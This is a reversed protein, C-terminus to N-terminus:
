KNSIAARLARQLTQERAPEPIEDEVIQYSSHQPAIKKIDYM